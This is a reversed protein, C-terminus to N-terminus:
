VVINRVLGTVEREVYKKQVWDYTTVFDGVQLAEINKVGLKTKIQTGSLFCVTLILGSVGDTSEKISYGTQKIGLINLTLAFGTDMTLTIHNEDSYTVSSLTGTKLGDYELLIGDSHSADTGAFGQIQTTVSANNGEWNILPPEGIITLGGNEDGVLNVVGGNSTTILASGGPNLTVEGQINAGLGVDLWGGNNITVNSVTAGDDAYIAGSSIIQTGSGSIIAGSLSAGSMIVQSANTGLYTIGSIEGGSIIQAGSTIATDYVIGSLIYQNGDNVFTSYVSGGYVYQNAYNTLSTNSVVGSYIRQLGTNIFTDYVEGGSIYQSTYNSLHTNSVVGASIFHRGNIITNNFASGADVYQDGSQIYTDIVVGGLVRQFGDFISTDSAVGGYVGQCGDKQFKTHVVTGGSIYQTGINFSTNVVSGNWVEQQGSYQGGDFNINSAIGSVVRQFAGSGLLSINTATGGYLYQIGDTITASNVYGGERVYMAASSINLSNVSMGSTIYVNSLNTVVVGRNIYLTDDGPPCSIITEESSSSQIESGISNNTVSAGSIIHNSSNSM